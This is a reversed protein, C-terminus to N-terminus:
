FANKDLYYLVLNIVEKARDTSVIEPTDNPTHYGDSSKFPHVLTVVDVGEQEFYRHDSNRYIYKQCDMNLEKGYKFFDSKLKGGEQTCSILYLPLVVKSGIQDLNILECRELPYLPHKVYYESGTFGTEEGNFAIFLLTKKPTIKNQNIFRAIEVIAAVGSANDLAGPFYVSGSSGLHDLHASLIVVGADKDTGPIVGVVNATDKVEALDLRYDQTYDDMGEAKKLGAEKFKNAVYEVAMMNEKTGTMRGKYKPLALEKIVGMFNDMNLLSEDMNYLLGKHIEDLESVSIDKSCGSLLTIILIFASLLALAKNFSPKITIEGKFIESM